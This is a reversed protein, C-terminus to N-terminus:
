SHIIDINCGHNDTGTGGTIASIRGVFETGNDMMPALTQALDTGIYGIHVDKNWMLKIANRDVQNDPERVMDLADGAKMDDWPLIGRYTTGAVKSHCYLGPVSDDVADMLTVTERRKGESYGFIAKAEDYHDRLYQYEPLAKELQALTPGKFVTKSTVLINLDHRDLTVECDAILNRWSEEFGARPSLSRRGTKAEFRFEGYDVYEGTKVFSFVTAEIEARMKNMQALAEEHEVINKRLERYEEIDTTTDEEEVDSQDELKEDDM